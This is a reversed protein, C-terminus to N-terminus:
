EELKGWAEVRCSPIASEKTVDACIQWVVCDRVKMNM